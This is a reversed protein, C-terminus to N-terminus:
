RLEDINSVYCYFSVGDAIVFGNEGNPLVCPMKESTYIPQEDDNIFYSGGIDMEVYSLRMKKQSGDRYSITLEDPFWSTVDMALYDSDDIDASWKKLKEDKYKDFYEGIENKHPALYNDEINKLSEWVNETNLNWGSEESSYTGVDGYPNDLEWMSLGAFSEKYNETQMYFRTFNAFAEGKDKVQVTVECAYDKGKNTATVTVNGSAKATVNGKKDVEAVLPDSSSWKVKGKANKLKLKETGNVELTISTKNLKPKKQKAPIAQPLVPIMAAVFAMILLFALLNKGKKM